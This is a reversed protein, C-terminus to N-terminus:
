SATVAATDAAVAAAAAEAKEKKIRFERRSEIAGGGAVEDILGLLQAENPSLVHDGEFLERCLSVCFLWFLQAYPMAEAVLEKKREESVADLDDDLFIYSNRLILRTASQRHKNDNMSQILIFNRSAGDLSGSFSRSTAGSNAIEAILLTLMLKLDVEVNGFEDPTGRLLKHLERAGDLLGVKRSGKPRYTPFAKALGRLLVWKSLREM